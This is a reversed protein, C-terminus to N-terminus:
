KQEKQVLELRSEFIYEKDAYVEFVYTGPEPFVCNKVKFVLDVVHYPGNFIVEGLVKFAAEGESKKFHLEVSCTGNGNTLSVLIALRSHQCPFRPAAISNFTSVLTKNNTGHERIVKECIVIAVGMPIESSREQAMPHCLTEFQWPRLLCFLRGKSRSLSEPKRKRNENAEIRGHLQLVCELGSEAPEFEAIIDLREVFQVVQWRFM